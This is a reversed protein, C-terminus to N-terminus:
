MSREPIKTESKDAPTTPRKTQYSNIIIIIILSRVTQESGKKTEDYEFFNWDFHIAQLSSLGLGKLPNVNTLLWARANIKVRM